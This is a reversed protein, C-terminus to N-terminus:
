KKTLHPPQGPKWTMAYFWSPTTILEFTVDIEGTPTTTITARQGDPVFIYLSGNITVDKAVIESFGELVIELQEEPKTAKKLAESATRSLYGKNHVTVNELLARGVKNSFIRGHENTPLGTPALAKISLSGDLSLNHCSIEALDLTLDSHPAISGSHIKQGIVEWFPGLCPNFSFTFAPGDKLYESLSQKKPLSFDCYAELIHRTAYMWDYFCSEPTELPSQNPAFAKKAVSMFKEREQVLLFTDLSDEDPQSAFEEAINQMSCELRAAIKKPNSNKLAEPTAKANILMGPFPTHAIAKEVAAINAFLTNTNAPCVGEKFLEPRLNKLTAFQTYEINSIAAANGPKRTLINLGETLGPRSPISAFGFSKHHSLGYGIFAALSNDLGVLPNNVQRVIVTDANHNHLWSFGGSIEGLRWVIGHGGPKMDLTLPSTIVWSGDLSVMPVQDQIMIRISDPNRDYWHTAKGMEMIHKNNDKAYSTMILTPMSVQKGFACYHFYELAEIDRMLGELLTRGDFLLCAAPLAEKTTEDILNLRDGAGGVVLIEATQPLRKIGEYAMKWVAENKQRIDVYPPIAFHSPDLPKDQTLFLRLVTDQYGIIGGIPQYFINIETLSRILEKFKESKIPLTKFETFIPDFQHIAMLSCLALKEQTPAQTYWTNLDPYISLVKAASTAKELFTLQEEPTKCSSILQLLSATQAKEEKLKEIVKPGEDPPAAYCSIFPLILLFSLWLIHRM